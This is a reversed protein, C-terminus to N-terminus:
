NCPPRSRGVPVNIGAVAVKLRSGSGKGRSGRIFIMVVSIANRIM